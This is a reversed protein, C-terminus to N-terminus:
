PPSGGADFPSFRREVAKAWLVAARPGKFSLSFSHRGAALERPGTYPQGDVLGQLDGSESVLAYRAPIAIDFQGAHKAVPGSAQLFRGAILLHGIPLFNETLFGRTRAPFLPIRAAAVCTRTAIVDEPIREPLLGRELRDGTIREMIYPTPRRRFIVDGKQDLVLDSPDTLRLVEAILATEYRTDDHEQAYELAVCGLLLLAIAPFRWAHARAPGLATTARAGRSNQM